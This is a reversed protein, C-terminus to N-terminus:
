GRTRSMTNTRLCTKALKISLLELGEGHLFLTSAMPTLRSLALRAHVWTSEPELRFTLDTRVIRYSPAQYDRLLVPSPIADKMSAGNM